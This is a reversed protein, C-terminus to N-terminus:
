EKFFAVYGAWLLFAGVGAIAVKEGTSVRSQDVCMDYGAYVDCPKKGAAIDSQKMCLRPASKYAVPVWRDGPTLPDYDVCQGTPFCRKRQQDFDYGPEQGPLCVDMEESPLDGLSRSSSGPLRLM